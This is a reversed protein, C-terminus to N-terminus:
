ESNRYLVFCKTCYNTYNNREHDEDFDPRRRTEVIIVIDDDDDNQRVRSAVWQASLLDIFIM